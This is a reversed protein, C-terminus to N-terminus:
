ESGVSHTPDGVFLQGTLARHLDSAGRRLNERASPAIIRRHKDAHIGANGRFHERARQGGTEARYARVNNIEPNDRCGRDSIEDAFVLSVGSDHDGRRVVRVLDVSDLYEVLVAVGSFM